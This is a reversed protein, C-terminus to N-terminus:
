REEKRQESPALAALADQAESFTFHTSVIAAPTQAYDLIAWPTAIHRIGEIKYRAGHRLRAIEGEMEAVRRATAKALEIVAPTYENRWAQWRNEAERYADLSEYTQESEWASLRSWYEALLKEGTELDPEDARSLETTPTM